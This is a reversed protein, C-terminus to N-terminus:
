ADDDDDDSAADLKKYRKTINRFLGRQPQLVNIKPYIFFQEMTELRIEKLYKENNISFLGTALKDTSAIKM